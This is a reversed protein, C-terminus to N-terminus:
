QSSYELSILITGPLSEDWSGGVCEAPTLWFGYLFNVNDVWVNGAELGCQHQHVDFSASSNPNTGYIDFSVENDSHYHSMFVVYAGPPFDLSPSGPAPYLMHTGTSPTGQILMDFPTNNNVVTVLNNCSGNSFWDQWWGQNAATPEKIIPLVPQTMVVPTGPNDSSDQVSLAYGNMVSRIFGDGCITWQQNLAGQVRNNIQVIAQDSPDSNRIEAVLGSNVNTLYGNAYSWYQDSVQDTTESDKNPWICLATGPQTSAGYVSVVPEYDWTLWSTVQSTALPAPVLAEAVAASVEAADMRQRRIDREVM